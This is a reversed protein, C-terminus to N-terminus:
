AEGNWRKLNPLFDWLMLSASAVDLNENSAAVMPACLEIMQELTLDSTFKGNQYCYICYDENMSGDANIGYDAELEFEMGCSQCHTSM